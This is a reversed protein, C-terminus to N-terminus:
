FVIITVTLCPDFPLSLVFTRFQLLALSQPVLLIRILSLALTSPLSLIPALTTLGCSGVQTRIVLDPIKSGQLMVSSVM